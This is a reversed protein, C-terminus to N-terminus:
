GYLFIHQVMTKGKKSVRVKWPRLVVSGYYGGGNWTAIARLEGFETEASRALSAQDSGLVCGFLVELATDDGRAAGDGRGM